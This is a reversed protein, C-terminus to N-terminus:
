KDSTRGNLIDLTRRVDNDQPLYVRYFGENGFLASAIHAKIVTAVLTRQAEFDRDNRPIGEGEARAPLADVVSRPLTFRRDFDAADAYARTLEEAHLRVYDFAARSLLRHRTLQNYYGFSEDRVYSLVHDPYIGGGGYVTRGGTTHYPTSDTVATVPSDSVAEESVREIFDRYYEDSGGDYPRQICRGSPTYYRATTLLVASGDSMGFETQVLGKGFSRRGVIVARDNDQLAGSVVESASASFEDILVAVQGETMSGGHRARVDKRGEHAGETYVVLSGAPLFENAIGIAAALSGGGNGRLDLVVRDVGERRLARLATRLEDHSTAAFRELMLYGTHSDLMGSYILSPTSVPGRRVDVSFARTGRQAGIHATTGKPGRLYAVASDGQTGPGSVRHGDVELIADGPLLASGDSPGGRMVTGVFTTDGERHLVMGVGDFNGRLEENTRAAQDPTMYASHPDLESLMASVMRGSLSDADFRDVYHDRVLDMVEDVKDGVRDHGSAPRPFTLGLLTGLAMAILILVALGRNNTDKNMPGIVAFTATEYRVAASKKLAAARPAGAAPRSRAAVFYNARILFFITDKHCSCPQGHRGFFM